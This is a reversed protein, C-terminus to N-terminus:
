PCLCSIQEPSQPDSPVELYGSVQDYPSIDGSLVNLGLGKVDLICNGTWIIDCVQKVLSNNKADWEQKGMEQPWTVPLIVVGM